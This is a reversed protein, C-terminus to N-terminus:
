FLLETTTEFMEEALINENIYEIRLNNIVVTGGSETRLQIFSNKTAVLGPVTLTTGPTLTNILESYFKSDGGHMSKSSSSTSNDVYTQFNNDGDADNVSVIDMVVNYPRSLD